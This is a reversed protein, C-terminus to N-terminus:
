WASIVTANIDQHLRIRILYSAFSCPSPVGKYAATKGVLDASNTRNFLLDGARLLLLPFESHTEPLYKLHTLDLSGNQCLNGMRLVPVGFSSRTKASSGYQIFDACDAIKARCWGAPLSNGDRVKM